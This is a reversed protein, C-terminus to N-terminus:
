SLWWDLFPSSICKLDCSCCLRRYPRRAFVIISTQMAWTSLSWFRISLTRCLSHDETANWLYAIWRFTCLHFTPRPIMHPRWLAFLQSEKQPVDTSADSLLQKDQQWFASFYLLEGTLSSSNLPLFTTKEHLETKILDQPQKELLACLLHEIINTSHINFSFWFSMLCNNFSDNEMKLSLLYMKLFYHAWLTKDHRIGNKNPMFKFLALRARYM